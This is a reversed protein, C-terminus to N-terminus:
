HWAIAIGFTLQIHKRMGNDTVRVLNNFFAETDRIVKSTLRVQGSPSQTWDYGPVAFGHAFSHRVRLIENLRERVQVGVMGRRTWVWDGIPDYGTYLQLLARTNEANPTNFRDLARESAQRSISYVAQFSTNRPEEIEIYFARVLNNIYADWAAVYGALAAHYFVQKETQLKRPLQGDTAAERLTRM